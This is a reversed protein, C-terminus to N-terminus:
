VPWVTYKLVRQNNSTRIRLVEIQHLTHKNTSIGNTGPLRFITDM